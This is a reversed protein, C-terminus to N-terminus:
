TVVQSACGLSPTAALWCSDSYRLLELYRTLFKSSSGPVFTLRSSTRYKYKNIREEGCVWRDWFGQRVVLARRPAEGLGRIKSGVEMKDEVIRIGVV